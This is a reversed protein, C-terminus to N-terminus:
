RHPGGINALLQEFPLSELKARDRETRLAKKDGLASSAPSLDSLVGALEGAARAIRLDLGGGDGAGAGWDGPGAFVGTPMVRSRFYSFLPRVAFDLVLSHRASGATAGILVPLGELGQPDLLDFFSKFLGSYSASFVPTVVILADANVVADIAQALAPPAYGTVLNNAIDVALDRLEVVDIRATTGVEALQAVVASGLQDALMRSSSPVGLGASIVVIRREVENEM